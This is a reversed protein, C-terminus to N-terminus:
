SELIVYRNFVLVLILGSASVFNIQKQSTSSEFEPVNCSENVYKYVRSGSLVGWFMVKLSTV